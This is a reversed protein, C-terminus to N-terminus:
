SKAQEASVGPQEASSGASGRRRLMRLLPRVGILVVLILVAYVAAYGVSYLGLGLWRQFAVSWKLASAPSIQEQLQDLWAGLQTLDLWADLQMSEPSSTALALLGIPVAACAMAPLFGRLAVQWVPVQVVRCGMVLMGVGRISFASCAIVICIGTLGFPVAAALALPIVVCNEIISLTAPIRPKGMGLMISRTIIQSMPLLEGLMLIILLGSVYAYRAGIWLTIFREGLCYFGGLFFLGFALAFKSGELFLQQQHTRREQAHLATAVPTIAEAGAVMVQVAYGLLRWAAAFPAVLAPGLQNGVIWPGSEETVKRGVSGIFNWIGYDFLVSLAARTVWDLRLALGPVLRICVAAKILDGGLSIGAQMLALTILGQEATVLQYTLVVRTLSGVIDVVNLIDFRQYAWLTADFTSLALTSAISFGAILLAWRVETVQEGPVEFLVFFLLVFLVTGLCALLAATGTVLFGSSILVRVGEHDDKANAFAINRGLSGRIGLDLLSFSGTGSAILNWLGYGTDGLRHMLLPLVIFGTLVRTGLGILNLVVNRAVTRKSAM